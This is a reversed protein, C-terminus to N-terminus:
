NSSYSFSLSIENFRLDVYSM